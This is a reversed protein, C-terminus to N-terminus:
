SSCSERSNSCRKFALSEAEESSSEASSHCGTAISASSSSSSWRPGEFLLFFIAPSAEDFLPAAAAAPAGELGLCIRLAEVALEDDCPGDSGVVVVLRAGGATEAVALPGTGGRDFAASRAFAPAAAMWRTAGLM